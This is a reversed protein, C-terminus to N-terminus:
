QVICKCNRSCATGSRDMQQTLSAALSRGGAAPTASESDHEFAAVAIRGLLDVGAAWIFDTAECRLVSPGQRGTLDVATLTSLQQEPQQQVWTVLSGVSCAAQQKLMADAVQWPAEQLAHELQNILQCCSTLQATQQATFAAPPSRQLLQSM